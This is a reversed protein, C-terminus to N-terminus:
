WHPPPVNCMKNLTMKMTPNYAEGSFMRPLCRSVATWTKSVFCLPRPPGIQWLWHFTGQTNLQYRFCSQRFPKRALRKANCCRDPRFVWEYADPQLPQPFMDRFRSLHQGYNNQAVWAPRGTITVRLNAPIVIVMPAPIIVCNIGWCNKIHLQHTHLQINIGRANNNHLQRESIDYLCSLCVGSICM